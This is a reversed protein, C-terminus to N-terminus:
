GVKLSFFPPLEYFFRSHRRIKRNFREPFCFALLKFFFTVVIGSVPLNLKVVAMGDHSSYKSSLHGPEASRVPHAWFVFWASTCLTPGFLTASGYWCSKGDVM